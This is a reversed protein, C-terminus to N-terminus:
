DISGTRKIHLGHEDLDSEDIDRHHICDWDTSNLLSIFKKNNIDFNAKDVHLILWWIIIKASPVMKADLFLLREHKGKVAFFTMESITTDPFTQVKFLKRRWMKYEWLGSLISDGMILTTDKKWTSQKNTM